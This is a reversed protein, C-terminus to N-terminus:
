TRLIEMIAEELKEETGVFTLRNISVFDCANPDNDYLCILEEVPIVWAGKMQSFTDWQWSEHPQSRAHNEHHTFGNLDHIEPEDFITYNEGLWDGLRMWWREPVIKVGAMVLEAALQAFFDVEPVKTANVLQEHMSKM